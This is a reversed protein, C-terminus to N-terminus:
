ADTPHRPSSSGRDQEAMAPESGPLLLAPDEGRFLEATVRRVLDLLGNVVPTPRGQWLVGFVPM